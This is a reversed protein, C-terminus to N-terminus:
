PCVNLVGVSSTSSATLSRASIRLPIALDNSRPAASRGEISKAPHPPVDCPDAELLELGAADDRAAIAVGEESGLAPDYEAFRVKVPPREPETV